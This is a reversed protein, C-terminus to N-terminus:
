LPPYDCIITKKETFGTGLATMRPSTGLIQEYNVAVM